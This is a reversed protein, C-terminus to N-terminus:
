QLPRLAREPTLAYCLADTGVTEPLGLKRPGEEATAKVIARLYREGEAESVDSPKTAENLIKAILPRKRMAAWEEEKRNAIAAAVETRGFFLPVLESLEKPGWLHGDVNVEVVVASGTSLTLAAISPEGAENFWVLGATLLATGAAPWSTTQRSRLYTEFSQGLVQGVRPLADGLRTPVTGAIGQQIAAPVDFVVRGEQAGIIATLGTSFSAAGVGVPQIKLDTDSVV